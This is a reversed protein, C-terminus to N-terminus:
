SVLDLKQRRRAEISRALSVGIVVVILAGAIPAIYWDHLYSAEREIWGVLVPDTVLVDGAIWGLLAGGATILLPFRELAKLVLTSGYVILAVECLGHEIAAQAHAVHTMFSSGGIATGDFYKPKIRLYESLTMPATRVQTAASFVGDIDSLKLGCDDLARMTAQAMLDVPSTNPAVQGLDSEAAGVVAVSGRRLSSAAASM